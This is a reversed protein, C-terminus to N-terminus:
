TNVLMTITADLTLTGFDASFLRFLPAVSLGITSGTRVTVPTGPANTATSTNASCGAGYCVTVSFGNGPAFAWDRAVQKVSDTAPSGGVCGPVNTRGLGDPGAPCATTISGGHVIAFRAAERASNELANRAWVVRGFDFISILLVLFLPAVMAFEVLAQGGAPRRRSRSRRPGVDTVAGM